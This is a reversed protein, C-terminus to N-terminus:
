LWLLQFGFLKFTGTLLFVLPAYLPYVIDAVKVYAQPLLVKTKTIIVNNLLWLEICFIYLSGIENTM